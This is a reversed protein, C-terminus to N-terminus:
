SQSRRRRILAFLLFGASILPLTVPEPVERLQGRIEGSPFEADHINTYALGNELGSILASEASSTTGGNDMVFVSNYTAPLTLDFTNTYMGSVTHPFGTFPVAVPEAIGLGGCCHIHAASAPGGTLGLFNVTVSLTQAVTDLFVTANGTATSANPPTEQSGFMNDTFEILSASAPVALLGASVFTACAIRAAQFRM